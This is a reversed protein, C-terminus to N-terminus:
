IITFFCSQLPAGACGVNAKPLVDADLAVALGVFMGIAVIILGVAKAIMALAAIM